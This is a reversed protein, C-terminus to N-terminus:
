PAVLPCGLKDKLIAIWHEGPKFRMGAFLSRNGGWVVSHLAHDEALFKMAESGPEGVRVAGGADIGMERLLALCKGLAAKGRLYFEVLYDEDSDCGEEGDFEVRILVLVIVGAEVRQALGAVYKIAEAKMDTGDLLFLINREPPM